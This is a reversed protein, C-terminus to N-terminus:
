TWASRSLRRRLVADTADDIPEPRTHLVARVVVPAPPRGLARRLGVENRTTRSREVAHEADSVTHRARELARDARTHVSFSM